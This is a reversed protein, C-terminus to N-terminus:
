LKIDVATKIGVLHWRDSREDRGLGLKVKMKRREFGREAMRELWINRGLVFEGMRESWAKYSIYADDTQCKENPGVVCCEDIWASLSDSENRYTQTSNTVIEPRKLGHERWQWYGELMWNLIGSLEADLKQELLKDATNEDFTRNFELLHIRRWIGNDTGIIRPKRNVALWIKAQVQFEFQHGYKKSASVTDGGTAMKVKAENLRKGENSEIMTIYRKGRMVALAENHSGGKDAEFTEFSANGRYTGLVKAVTNLLRSKGNSGSGVCLFMAQEEVSATLSYGLARQVYAIVMQDGGFIEDLFQLWRPCPATTDYAAGLQLTVLDSPQAPRFVGTDLEYVGNQANLLAGNTDLQENITLMGERTAALSRVNELHSRNGCKTALFGYLLAATDEDDMSKAYAERLRLMEEVSRTTIAANHDVTWKGGDWVMWVGDTANFLLRGRYLAAFCEANGIESRDAVGLLDTQEGVGNLREEIQQREANKKRWELYRKGLTYEGYTLPAGVPRDEYLPEGTEPSSNSGHRPSDWSKESTERQTFRPSFRFLWDSAGVDGNTWRLLWGCLNWDGNSASDGQDTANWLDVFEKARKEDSLATRKVWKLMRDYHQLVAFLQDALEQREVIAPYRGVTDATMAFFRSHGYMELARHEIGCTEGKDIKVAHPLTGKLFIHRGTGSVSRESWSGFQATLWNAFTAWDDCADLDIGIYGAACESSAGFEFGLGAVATEGGHGQEQQEVAALAHEFTTWTAQDNSRARGTVRGGHAQYPVKRMKYAGSTDTEGEAVWVVWNPLEKLESPVRERLRASLYGASAM